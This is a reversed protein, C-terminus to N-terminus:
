ENRSENTQASLHGGLYRREVEALRQVGAVGHLRLAEGELAVRREVERPREVAVARREISRADERRADALPAAHDDDVRHRRAM